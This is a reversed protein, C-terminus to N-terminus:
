RYGARDMLKVAEAQRRGAEAVNILNPRFDGWSRVVKEAPVSPNAPYELNGGAFRGQAEPSALWELLAQAQEPQDSSVTVGGGSVNVHVGEGQQDAWFLAVEADPEDRTLRGYYYTNVIGVDCQGADIAEMVATDNSFPPAALNAVWGTVIEQTKEAGHQAILMAVLSQNYVKESTRLCLRGKWQPEALAAYSSLSQAPAREPHHVITRARVSLGFWRNQPDRLHAPIAAILKKSDLPQLLGLQAAQWLNGADVTLLLDAPSHQRENDLRELLQGAQATVLQVPIGTQQSYANLLPQILQENRASYVTLPAAESGASPAEGGKNRDCGTLGLTVALGLLALTRVPM